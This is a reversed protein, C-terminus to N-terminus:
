HSLVWCKNEHDHTQLDVTIRNVSVTSPQHTLELSRTRNVARGYENQPRPEPGGPSVEERPPDSSPLLPPRVLCACRHGRSWYCAKRQDRANKEKETM